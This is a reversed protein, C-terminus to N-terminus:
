AYPAKKAIEEDILEYSFLLENQPEWTTNTNKMSPWWFAFEGFELSRDQFHRPSYIPDLFIWKGDLKNGFIDENLTLNGIDWGEDKLFVYSHYVMWVTTTNNGPVSPVQEPASGVAVEYGEMKLLTALLLAQDCCIGHQTGVIEGPFKIIEPIGFCSTISIGKEGPHPFYIHDRVYYYILKAEALRDLEEFSLTEGTQLLISKNEKLPKISVNELYEKCLKSSSTDLGGADHVVMYNM